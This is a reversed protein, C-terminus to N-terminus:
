VRAVTLSHLYRMLTMLVDRSSEKRRADCAMIPM